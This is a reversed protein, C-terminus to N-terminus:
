SPAPSASVILSNVMSYPLPYLAYYSHCVPLDAVTVIGSTASKEIRANHSLIFVLANIM